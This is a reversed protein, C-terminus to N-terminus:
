ANSNLEKELKEVRQELADITNILEKVITKLDDVLVIREEM